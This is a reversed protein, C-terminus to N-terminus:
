LLFRSGTHSPICRRSGCWPHSRCGLEGSLEGEEGAEQFRAKEGPGTDPAKEGGGDGVIAEKTTERSSESTKEQNPTPSGCHAFLALALALLAFPTWRM